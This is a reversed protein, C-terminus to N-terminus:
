SESIKYFQELTFYWVISVPVWQLVSGFGLNIIIGIDGLSRFNIWYLIAVAAIQTFLAGVVCLFLKKRFKKLKSFILFVVVSVLLYVASYVIHFMYKDEIRSFLHGLAEAFHNIWLLLVITSIILILNKNM